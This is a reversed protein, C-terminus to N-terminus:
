VLPLLQYDVGLPVIAAQLGGAILAAGPPLPGASSLTVTGRDTGDQVWRLTMHYGEATAGPNALVFSLPESGTNSAAIGLPLTFNGDPHSATSAAAQSSTGYYFIWSCKTEVQVQLSVESGSANLIIRPM